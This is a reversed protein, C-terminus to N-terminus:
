YSLSLAIATTEQLLKVVCQLLENCTAPQGIYQIPWHKLCGTKLRGFHGMLREKDDRTRSQKKHQQQINAASMSHCQRTFLKRNRTPRSHLTTVGFERGKRTESEGGTLSYTRGWEWLHLAVGKFTSISCHSCNQEPSFPCSRCIFCLYIWKASWKHYYACPSM